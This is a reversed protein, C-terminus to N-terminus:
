WGNFDPLTEPDPIPLALDFDEPIDDPLNNTDVIGVCTWGKTETAKLLITWGTYEIKLSDDIKRIELQVARILNTMNARTTELRSRLAHNQKLAQGLYVEPNTNNM